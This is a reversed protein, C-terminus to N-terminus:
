GPLGLQFYGSAQTAMGDYQRMNMVLVRAMRRGNMRRAYESQGCLLSENALSCVHGTKTGFAQFRWNLEEETASAALLASEVSLPGPKM